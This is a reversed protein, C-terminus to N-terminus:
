RNKPLIDFYFKAPESAITGRGNSDNRVCQTHNYYYDDTTVHSINMHDISKTLWAIHRRIDCSDLVAPLREGFVTTSNSSFNINVDAKEACIGTWYLDELSIMPTTQCAALLPLIATGHLLYAPGGFYSPYTNWPWEQYTVKWKGDRDPTFPVSAVGFISHNFQRYSQIFLALNHVNVYVDDDVKLVFDVNACNKYLWNLFAAMKMSLNEYFDPIEVQIIDGYTKSEEQIQNQILTDNSMGVLFGSRAMGLLGDENAAQLHKKWTQRIMNRKVFNGPASVTAIFVSQNVDQCPDISLPYRFSLVDNLVTGLEPKLPKVINTLPLLGDRAVIYQTYNEVGPYPTNHLSAAMYNFFDRKITVNLQRVSVNEESTQKSQLSTDLAEELPKNECRITKPLRGIQQSSIDAQQIFYIMYIVFAATALLLVAKGFPFKTDM